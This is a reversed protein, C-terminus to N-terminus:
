PATTGNERERERHLNQRFRRFSLADCPSNLFDIKTTFSHTDISNHGNQSNVSSLGLNLKKSDLLAVKGKIIGLNELKQIRKWCPTQSLCVKKAIESISLSADAQLLDLINRDILDM